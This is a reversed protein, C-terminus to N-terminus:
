LEERINGQGEGGDLGGEAHTECGPAGGAGARPDERDVEWGHGVRLIAKYAKGSLAQSQELTIHADAASAMALATTMAILVHKKM